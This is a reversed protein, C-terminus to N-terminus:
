ASAISCTALFAAPIALALVPLNTAQIAGVLIASSTLSIMLWQAAVTQMWSGVNSTLQAVWWRRFAVYRLPSWGSEHRAPPAGRAHIVREDPAFVVLAAITDGTHEGPLHARENERVGM